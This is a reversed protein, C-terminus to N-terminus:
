SEPAEIFVDDFEEMLEEFKQASASIDVERAEGGEEAARQVVGRMVPPFRDPPAEGQDTLTPEVTVGKGTHEARYSVTLMGRRDEDGQFTSVAVLGQERRGRRFPPFVWLRDIYEVGVEERLRILIRPLAEPVGPDSDKRTTQRTM